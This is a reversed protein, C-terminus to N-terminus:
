FAKLIPDCFLGLIMSLIIRFKWTDKRRSGHDGFTDGLQWFRGCPALTSAGLGGFSLNHVGLVAIVMDLTVATLLFAM